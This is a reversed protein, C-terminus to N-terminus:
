HMLVMAPLMMLIISYSIFPLKFGLIGIFILAHGSSLCIYGQLSVLSSSYWCVQLKNLTTLDCDISFHNSCPM